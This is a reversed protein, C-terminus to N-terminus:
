EDKNSFERVWAAVHHSIIKKTRFISKQAQFWDSFTTSWVFILFIIWFILHIAALTSDNFKLMSLFFSVIFYIPLVIFLFFPLGSPEIGVQKQASIFRYLLKINKHSICKKSNCSSHSDNKCIRCHFQSFIHYDEKSALNSHSFYYNDVQKGDVPFHYKSPATAIGLTHDILFNYRLLRINYFNDFYGFWKALQTLQSISYVLFLLPSFLTIMLVPFGGLCILCIIVASISAYFIFQPIIFSIVDKTEWTFVLPMKSLIFIIENRLDQDSIFDPSISLIQNSLLEKKQNLIDIASTVDALYCDTTGKPTFYVNTEAKHSYLKNKSYRRDRGGDKRSHEWSHSVVPAIKEQIKCETELDMQQRLLWASFLVDEFHEDLNLMSLDLNESTSIHKKPKFIKNKDITTNLFYIALEISILMRSFLRCKERSETHTTIKRLLFEYILICNFALRFAKDEPCVMTKNFLKDVSVKHVQGSKSCVPCANLIGCWCCNDSSQDFTGSKNVTIVQKCFPCEAKMGIWDNEGELEANCVPCKFTFKETM